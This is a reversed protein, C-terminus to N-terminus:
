LFITKLAKGLEALAQYTPHTINQRTFRRLISEPDALNLRLATAFKIMEDYHQRILDWNIARFALV